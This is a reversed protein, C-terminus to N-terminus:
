TGGPGSSPVNIFEGYLIARNAGPTPSAGFTTITSASLASNALDVPAAHVTTPEGGSDPSSRLFSFSLTIPITTFPDSVPSVVQSIITTTKGTAGCIQVADSGNYGGTAGIPNSTLEISTSWAYEVPANQAFQAFALSGCLLLVFITTKM